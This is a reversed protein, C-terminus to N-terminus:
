EMFFPLWADFCRDVCRHLSLSLSFLYQRPDYSPAVRRKKMDSFFDEVSDHGRKMGAAAMGGLAPNSAVDDRLVEWSPLSGISAGHHPVSGPHLFIDSAHGHSISNRHVAAHPHSYGLEPSPTPLLGADTHSPAYQLRLHHSNGPCIFIRSASSQGPTSQSSVSPAKPRGGYLLEPVAGGMRRDVLLRSAEAGTVRQAYAPDAVTIAKSHKHQAHHAETHIKEHKKLDQPRKFKKDCVECHHPKLPVHVRLHSTIHDRKACTTNCEKWRCTLTLNNTSKRGIHDNCLHNYLLEPDTYSDKCDQWACAHSPPPPPSAPKNDSSDASAAPAAATAQSSSSQNDDPM